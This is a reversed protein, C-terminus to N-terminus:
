KGPFLSASNFLDAWRDKASVPTPTVPTPAVPTSSSAVTNAFLSLQGSPDAYPTVNISAQQYVDAVNAPAPVPHYLFTDTVTGDALTVSILTRNWHLPVIDTKFMQRVLERVESHRAFPCTLKVKKSVDLATFLKDQSMFETIVSRVENDLSNM